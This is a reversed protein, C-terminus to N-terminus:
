KRRERAADDSLVLRAIEPNERNCLAALRDARTANLEAIPGLWRRVHAEVEAKHLLDGSEKRHALEERDAQARTLRARQTKGDSTLAEVIQRTTYKNRPEVMLGNQRLGKEIVSRAYGFELTASSITWTM